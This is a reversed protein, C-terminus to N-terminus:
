RRVAEAGEDAKEQAASRVYRSVESDVPADVWLSRTYHEELGIVPVSSAPPAAVLVGPVRTVQFSLHTALGSVSFEALASAAAWSRGVAPDDLLGIASGALALYADTPEM